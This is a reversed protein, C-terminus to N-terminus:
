IIWAVFDNQVIFFQPTESEDVSDKYFIVQGSQFITDTDSDANSEVSIIFSGKHINRIAEHSKEYINKASYNQSFLKLTTVSYIIILIISRKNM